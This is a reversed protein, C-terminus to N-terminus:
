RWRDPRAVDVGPAVSVVRDFQSEKFQRETLRFHFTAVKKLEDNEREPPFAVGVTRLKAAERIAPVLDTDGGVVIAVDFNGLCADRVLHTAINVDTM